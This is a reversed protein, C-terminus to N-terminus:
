KNEEKAKRLRALHDVVKDQAYGKIEYTPTIPTLEACGWRYFCVFREDNEDVAKWGFETLYFSKIEGTDTLGIFDIPCRYIVGEPRSYIACIESDAVCMIQVIRMKLGGNRKLWMDVKQIEEADLKFMKPFYDPPDDKVSKFGAELGDRFANAIEFFWQDKM